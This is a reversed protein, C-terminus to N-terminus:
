YDRCCSIKRGHSGRGPAVTNGKPAVNLLHEFITKDDTKAEPVDFQAKINTLAKEAEDPYKHLVAILDGDQVIQVDRVKKAASTDVSM